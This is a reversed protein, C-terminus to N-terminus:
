AVEEFTTIPVAWFVQGDAGYECGAKYAASVSTRYVLSSALDVVELWLARKKLPYWEQDLDYLVCGERCIRRIGMVKRQYVHWLFDYTGEERVQGNARVIIPNSM